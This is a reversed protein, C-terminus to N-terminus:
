VLLLSPSQLFGIVQNLFRGAMAGDVLRHDFSLSLPMMLRTEIRGERVVPMWRSRGVLLLAAEPHNIIPTSYTGGVAGLNSITFTGGRLDEIAFSAERAQQALGALADAIQAISMQDVERLVPVVLGRPTDVAVGLNVYEKYVIQENEEDLMANLAPHQRLSLAVARLILPMATLKIGPGLYGEPVSKRISELETVDADDFNTVHPITSASHSMHRAITRRIQSIRDRRIPGWADRDPQGPPVVPERSIPPASPKSSKSSAPAVSPKGTTAMTRAATEIDEPTIRGHPGSGQVRALDVGLERALRRAVPGAPILAEDHIVQDAITTTSAAVPPKDKAPSVSPTGTTATPEATGSSDAAVGKTPEPEPKRKPEGEASELTLLVQGVKVKQGEKVHIKTVKGGDRSPVEIVAKDTELEFVGQNPEIVDGEHVLVKVIDGSEINEGLEPLKFEISM